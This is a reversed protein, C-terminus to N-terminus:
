VREHLKKKRRKTGSSPELQTNEAEGAVKSSERVTDDASKSESVSGDNGHDTGDPVSNEDRNGQEDGDHYSEDDSKTM